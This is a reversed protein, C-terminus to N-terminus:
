TSRSSGTTANDRSCITVVTPAVTCRYRTEAGSQVFVVGCSLAAPFCSRGSDPPATEPREPPAQTDSTDACPM